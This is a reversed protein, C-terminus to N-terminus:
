FHDIYGPPSYTPMPRVSTLNFYCDLIIHPETPVAIVRDMPTNSKIFTDGLTPRTAFDQALHWADLSAPADSRFLNTVQSKKYKYESYREQYGFVDDDAATGDVWIEKNLVAQEGLHAFTPYYFDYQTRRSWLKDLGQQYTIDARVNALGIIYGHETFSKTFGSSTEMVTGYAGLNGQPTTADTSSTQAVPQVNIRQSSGGLYEPRQLRADPSTVGFHANVHETYRTGSRADRELFKQIQFATRWENITSSTAASLDAYLEQNSAGTGIATKVITGSPNELIRAIGDSGEVTLYAGSTNPHKIPAQEGLPVSVQTGKQAWPLSTTFYDGKKGRKVPDNWSYPTGGGSVGSDGTTIKTTDQLNQDRFWESYILWYARHPLANIEIDSVLPVGFYDTLRGIDDSNGASATPILYDTSDDPNEQAGFFKHYNTWLLRMPVFFYFTDLYMNDLVPNIPTALRGFLNANLKHTDAPLVEDVYIPILDDADFCTKLTHSRDFSSRSVDATPVKSFSYNSNQNSQM